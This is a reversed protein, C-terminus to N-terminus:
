ANSKIMNKISKREDMIMQSKRREVMNWVIM